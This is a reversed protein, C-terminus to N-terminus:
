AAIDLILKPQRLTLHNANNRKGFLSEAYEAYKAYTKCIKRRTVMPNKPCIHLIHLKKETARM